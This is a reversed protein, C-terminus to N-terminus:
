IANKCRRIARALQSVIKEDDRSKGDPMYVALLFFAIILYNAWPSTGLQFVFSRFNEDIGMFRSSSNATLLSDAIKLTTKYHARVVQAEFASKRAEKNM